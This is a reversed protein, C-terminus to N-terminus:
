FEHGGAFSLEPQARSVFSIDSTAHLGLAVGRDLTIAQSEALYQAQLNGLEASLVGAQKEYTGRLLVFHVTSGIAYAYIAIFVVALSLCLFVARKYFLTEELNEIHLQQTRAIM